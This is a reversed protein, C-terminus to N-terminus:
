IMVFGGCHEVVEVRGYIDCLAAQLKPVTVTGLDLDHVICGDKFLLARTCSKLALNADHLCILAAKESGTIQKVVSLVRYKNQFDLASDPEDFLLLETNQVLARAIIVLQKQGESLTQFDQQAVHQLGVSQLATEARNQMDDSPRGFLSLMPTFGMMVVDIARISLSLSSKQPIYSILRARRRDTLKAIDQGNVAVAGTRKILSCIAKILTSKGSANAGLLACIEGKRITLTVNKVVNKDGYGASLNDIKLLNSM